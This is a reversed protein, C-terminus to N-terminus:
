KSHNNENAFSRLFTGSLINYIASPNLQGEVAEEMVPFTSGFQRRVESASRAPSQGSLNASTSVIPKGFARCLRQIPEFASVRVALSSFQGTLWRPTKASAPLVWTIPGPWRSVICARQRDDLQSDDIYNTLQAYYAVVLILGKQWSRHKLRLLTNVASESDPDCGLGFVSETPYAIVQQQRLAIILDILNLPSCKSEM